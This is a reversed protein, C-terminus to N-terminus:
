DAGMHEALAHGNPKPVVVVPAQAFGDGEAGKDIRKGSKPAFGGQVGISVPSEDSAGGGSVGRVQGLSPGSRQGELGSVGEASGSRDAEPRARKAGYSLGPLVPRGSEDMEFNLAYVFSQGPAGRHLALYELEELRHLHKKLQSDSWGSHQRVTARTFRYDLREIDLRECEATVMKDILLLLRRTQTQVDDLSRMLVHSALEWALKVDDSTAEIYELKDGDEDSVKVERQHQYLLTIAQILTLFKMHDRRTRTMADPFSHDKLHEIVVQVPRLLRQANRHLRVIKDQRMRAKLGDLTQAERQKRHIARTQERDENVALVLCRNMLEEDVDTATTTLFIMVPGEVEYEHTVHKGSVPDKGTSAINLKGESQLLKLPYSAAEAGQQEAIALIKHKLNKQGMYFLAQSTMATYSVRHEEPIFDLVAEMLSSKGASSSSQVVVALPKPLMRSVAALYSVKKNAEEGVAGCREFDELVRDLLRPDRLLEMAAAQEADTMTAAEEAPALAKGIRERQKDQLIGWLRGVDSHMAEEKVALEYAAQKIFSARRQASEMDFTDGHYRYEGRVNAGSVKVNVQMRGRALSKELWLVQYVRPGITVKVDDGDVEVKPETPASMPMPRAAPEASPVANVALSFVREQPQASESAAAAPVSERAPEAAPEPTPTPMPEEIKKEKATSKAEAPLPEVAPAAAAVPEAEIVPVVARGAPRPGKGMWAAGTLLVGLATAAPTTKLAYENADMGKPFQVRFCELGMGTLEEALKAAAKDGAEDRDYAIYVRETGHRQFAARHDATFGNTGYSATVNRYGAVWFTLADILAECLIIDKSAILAEENWVGRHPGPLYTHYDTGTRLNPVIKRGYMEVVDGALNFVPVVLSGNFHEHGPTQNRIVGLAKLRARQADGALRNSAPLHLCLTRNAYGLKFRDIIEGSQLGRKLLYRKAEPSDQLTRNYYDVVVGLLKKDDATPDILPPLKPVTAVKVVPGASPVYDRKLLELARHFSVGEACKVWEIVDGKRDCGFCHWENKVPDISLSPNRDDHFPCLGMLSRGSRHLKIGRAEALRQISVERKIREKVEPPVYPMEVAEASFGTLLTQM